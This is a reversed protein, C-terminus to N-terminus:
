GMVREDHALGTGALVTFSHPTATAGLFFFKYSNM